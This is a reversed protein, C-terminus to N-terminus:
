IPRLPQGLAGSDRRGASSGPNHFVRPGSHHPLQCPMDSEIVNSPNVSRHIWESQQGVRFNPSIGQLYPCLTDPSVNWRPLSLHMFLRVIVSEPTGEPPVALCVRPLSLPITKGHCEFLLKVPYSWLSLPVHSLHRPCGKKGRHLLYRIVKGYLLAQSMDQTVSPKSSLCTIKSGREIFGNWGRLLPYPTRGM